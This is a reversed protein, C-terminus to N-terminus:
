LPKGPERHISAPGAAHFRDTRRHDVRVNGDDDVAVKRGFADVGIRWVYGKVPADIGTEVLASRLQRAFSTGSRNDGTRCGVASVKAISAPVTRNVVECLNAIHRAATTADALGMQGAIVDGHGVLQVKIRGGLCAPDGGIVHPVQHQDRYIVVAEPHKLRLRAISEVVANDSGYGVIVRADYRAAGPVGEPAANRVSEVHGGICPKDRVPVFRAPQAAPSGAIAAITM